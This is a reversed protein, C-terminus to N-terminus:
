KDMCIAVMWTLICFQLRNIAVKAIYLISIGVVSDKRGGFKREEIFSEEMTEPRAATAETEAKGVRKLLSLEEESDDVLLVIKSVLSSPQAAVLM